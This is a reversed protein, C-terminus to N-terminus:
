VEMVVGVDEPITQADRTLLSVVFFTTLSAALSLGAISVGSPITMVKLFALTEMCLTLGIGVMM